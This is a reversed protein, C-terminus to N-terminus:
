KAGKKPLNWVQRLHKAIEKFSKGEDDNMSILRSQLANEIGVVQQMSYVLGVGDDEGDLTFYTPSESGAKEWTGVGDQVAINCLVGLCCYGYSKGDERPRRLRGEAQKYKGSELAELWKLRLHKKAKEVSGYTKTLLEKVDKALQLM